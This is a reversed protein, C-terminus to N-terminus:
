FVELISYRNYVFSSLDLEDDVDDGECDEELDGGGDQTSLLSYRNSIYPALDFDDEDEM